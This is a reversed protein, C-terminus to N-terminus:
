GFFHCHGRRQTITRGSVLLRPGLARGSAIAERVGQATTNRAGCDYALTIGARVMREAAIAGRTILEEDTESAMTALPDVTPPLTVHVHADALGPLATSDSFDHSRADEPSAVTADPGVEAMTGDVVLIAAEALPARETGDLLRGVRIRHVSRRGPVITMPGGPPTSGEIM